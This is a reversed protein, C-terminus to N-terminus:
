MFVHQQSKTVYTHGGVLYEVNSNTKIGCKSIDKPVPKLFMEPDGGYIFMDVICSIADIHVAEGKHTPVHVDNGPGDLLSQGNPVTAWGDVLGWAFQLQGLDTIFNQM